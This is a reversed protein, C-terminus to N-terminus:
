RRRRLALALAALLASPAPEPVSAPPAAFLSGPDEISDFVLVQDLDGQWFQTTNRNVGFRFQQLGGPNSGLSSVVQVGNLWIDGDGPFIKRIVIHDWSGLASPAGTAFIGAQNRWQYVGQHSEFQWSFAASAANNNSMIGQFDGQNLSGQSRVWFSITFNQTPGPGGTELYSPSSDVGDFRAFGLSLDPGGGVATLDYAPPTGSVDNANGAFSWAAILAAEAPAPALLCVLAFVGATLWRPGIACRSPRARMVEPM